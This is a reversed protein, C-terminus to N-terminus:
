RSRKPICHEDPGLMSTRGWEWTGSQGREDTIGGGGCQLTGFNPGQPLSKGIWCSGDCRIAGLLLVVARRPGSTPPSALTVTIVLAVKFYDRADNIFRRVRLNDGQRRARDRSLGYEYQEAALKLYRARRGEARASPPSLQTCDPRRPPLRTGLPLALAVSPRCSAMSLLPFTEFVDVLGVSGCLM